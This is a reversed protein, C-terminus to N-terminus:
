KFVAGIIAIIIGAFGLVAGGFFPYKLSDDVIPASVGRLFALLMATAGVGIMILGIIGISM